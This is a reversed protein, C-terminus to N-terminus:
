QVKKSLDFLVREIALFYHELTELQGFVPFNM